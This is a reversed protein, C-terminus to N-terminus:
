ELWRWRLLDVPTQLWPDPTTQDLIIVRDLAPDAEIWRGDGLYALIHIGNSTVALDGSQLLATDRSELSQISPFSGISRTMNRYGAQMARASADRWWLSIAARAATPNATTLGTKWLANIMGKRVLGSCDIGLFNEGGWVYRVGQYRKLEEVYHTQLAVHSVPRGPLALFILAGTFAAIFTNRLCPFRASGLVGGVLAIALSGLFLLRTSQYAAPWICLLTALM